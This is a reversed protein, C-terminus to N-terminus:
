CKCLSCDNRCVQYTLFEMHLNNIRFRRNCRRLLLSRSFAGRSDSKL